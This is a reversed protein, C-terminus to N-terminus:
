NDHILPLRRIRIRDDGVVVIAGESLDPALDDLHSVILEVHQDALANRSRFLIVSPSTRESM